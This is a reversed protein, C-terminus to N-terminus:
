LKGNLLKLAHASKAFANCDDGLARKDNSKGVVGLERVSV